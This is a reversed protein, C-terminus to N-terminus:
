CWIICVHKPASDHMCMRLLDPTNSRQALASAPCPLMGAGSQMAGDSYRTSCCTSGGAQWGHM